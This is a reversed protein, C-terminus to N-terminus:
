NAARILKFPKHDIMYGIGLFMYQAKSFNQSRITFSAYLNDWFPVKVNFAQYFPSDPKKGKIVEYGVIGSVSYKPMVIDGRVSLGLAWRDMLKGKTLQTIDSGDPNEGIKKAKYGASEDYVIDFGVGYRYKYTPMHLLAYSANGVFFTKDVFPSSLGTEDTDFQRQRVTTNFTFDSILRSNDYLPARLTPNFENIIRERDFYYTLGVFAVATNVGSNPMRTAGNSVHNLALGINLDFDKSLLYNYYLNAAFYVNVPASICQNGPNTLPDYRNWNFSAGFNWEYKLFSRISFAKLIGGQLLYVSVPNGAATSNFDYFGVGIGYYPMGYVIDKWRNGLSTVGARIEGYQSYGTQLKSSSVLAKGGSYKASIFVPRKLLHSKPNHMYLGEHLITDIRLSDASCYRRGISGPYIDGEFPSSAYSSTFVTSLLVVIITLTKFQMADM